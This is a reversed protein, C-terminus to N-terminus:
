QTETLKDDIADDGSLKLDKNSQECSILLLRKQILKIQM